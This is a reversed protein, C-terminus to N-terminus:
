KGKHQIWPITDRSGNSDYVVAPGWHISASRRSDFQGAQHELTMGGTIQRMCDYYIYSKSSCDIAALPVGALQPIFIESLASFFASISCIIFLAKIIAKLTHHDAPISVKIMEGTLSM